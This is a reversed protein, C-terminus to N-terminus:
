GNLFKTIKKAMRASHCSCTNRTTKNPLNEFVFNDKAFYRTSKKKGVKSVAKLMAKVIVDEAENYINTMVDMAETSKAEDDTLNAGFSDFAEQCVMNFTDTGTLFIIMEDKVRRFMESKRNKMKQITKEINM